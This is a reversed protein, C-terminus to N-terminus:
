PSIGLRNPQTTRLPPPASGNNAAAQAPPKQATVRAGSTLGYQGDTVVQEGAQLGSSVLAQGHLQQRLKVPTTHATGNPAIVWVYPGQPGQDIAATPVTLGQEIDLVLRVNVSAGPWLAQKANPFVAKLTVTGSTADVQNSLASLTGEDLQRGGDQTWAQAVLGAGGSAAQRAQIENLNAQPLAFLVTIPQVQTLVVLGAPDSPNVVNGVDVLRLGLIGPLPASITTYGLQVQDRALAALESAVTAHLEHVLARQTQMQQVSVIGGGVLPIYRRLDAEANALNVRDREVAARDQDVAAQLLRPDLQVLLDGEKVVQGDKFALTKIQGTVLTRITVINFAAVRGIAELEIPVDRSTVVATAVPVAPSPQQNTGSNYRLRYFAFAGVAIAGLLCLGM